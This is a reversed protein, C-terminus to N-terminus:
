PQRPGRVTYGRMALLCLGDGGWDPCGMMRCYDTGGEEICLSDDDEVEGSFSPSEEDYPKKNEGM